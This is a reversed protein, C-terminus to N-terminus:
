IGGNIGVLVQLDGEIGVARECAESFDRVSWGCRIRAM